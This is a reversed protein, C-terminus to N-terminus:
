IFTYYVYIFIYVEVKVQMEKKIKTQRDSQRDTSVSSVRVSVYKYTFILCVVQITLITLFTELHIVKHKDKALISPLDLSCKCFPLSLVM